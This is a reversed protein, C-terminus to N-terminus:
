QPTGLWQFRLGVNARYIWPNVETEFDATATDMGIEDDFSQSASFTMTRDGLIAYARAGLLLSVGLPGYRGVDMEVELGPGIGNFYRSDSGSLGAERLFGPGSQVSTVCNSPPNCEADSVFGEADVKYNIWGVSPRIRLQRKGFRAPFAVGANVGWVLTDVKASVRTGQGIASEEDFTGIPIETLESVCPAGPEPGRICGPDGEVAPNHDNGFTPLLEGNVFFRPRTPISLAPSMLELSGGVFPQVGVDSGDVPDQLPIGTTSGGVFLASEGSAKVSQVTIGSVIAFSPVWQDEGQQFVAEAGEAALAASALLAPLALVGCFMRLVNPGM